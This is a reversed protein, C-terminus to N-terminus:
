SLLGVLQPVAELWEPSYINIGSVGELNMIERILEDAIDVGTQPPNDTEKMRNLFVDPIPISKFKETYELADEYNRLPMVSPILYAEELIDEDSILKLWKEFKEFEFVPHTIIFNVDQSVKKMLHLIQLELPEASCNATIGKFIEFEGELRTDDPLVGKRKMDDLIRLLNVVDIEYVGRMSPLTGFGQHSGSTCLVNRLGLSYGGIINSVLKLRNSDRTTLSLIPTISKDLLHRSIATGDAGIINPQTSVLIGDIENIIEDIPKTIGRLDTSPLPSITCILVFEEDELKDRFRNVVETKM